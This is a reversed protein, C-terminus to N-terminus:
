SMGDDSRVPPLAKGQLLKASWAIVYPAERPAGRGEGLSHEFEM